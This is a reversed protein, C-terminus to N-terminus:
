CQGLLSVSNLEVLECWISRLVCVFSMQPKSLLVRQCRSECLTWPVESMSAAPVLTHHLDDDNESLSSDKVCRAGVM